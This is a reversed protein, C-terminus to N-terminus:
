DDKGWTGFWPHQWASMGGDVMLMHGVVHESADSLLYVVAPGCSEPGPIARNPTHYEIWARDNPRDRFYEDALPTRIVGPAIGNVRIGDRILYVALTRVMMEIAGKSIDYSTSGVEALRGNISGTFVVRGRIGHEIWHRAFRQTLFYGAMVNLRLTKEFIEVTMQEFPIDFLSGANNVLMDVHPLHARTAQFLDDAVRDAEGLLEHAVHTASVGSARCNAIVEVPEKEGPQGHIVVDAGSAACAEVIGRGVGMTSGTVLVGHNELNILAEALDFVM